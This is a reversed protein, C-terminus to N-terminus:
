TPNKEVIPKKGRYFMLEPRRIRQKRTMELLSLGYIAENYLRNNVDAEREEKYCDEDNIHAYGRRHNDLYGLINNISIIEDETYRDLGLEWDKANDYRVRTNSRENLKFLSSSNSSNVLSSPAEDNMSIDEIRFKKQSKM